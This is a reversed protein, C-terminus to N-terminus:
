KATESSSPLTTFCEPAFRTSMSRRISFPSSRILTVSSPRPPASGWVPVPRRPISRRRAAKSPRRTIWLGIPPGVDACMVSGTSDQVDRAGARVM